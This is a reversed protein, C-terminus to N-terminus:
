DDKEAIFFHSTESGCCTIKIFDFQFYFYATEFPLHLETFNYKQQFKILLLNYLILITVDM